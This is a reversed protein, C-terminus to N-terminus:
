TECFFILIKRVLCVFASLHFALIFEIQNTFNIINFYKEYRTLSVQREQHLSCAHWDVVMAVLLALLFHRQSSVIKRQAKTHKTRFIRELM